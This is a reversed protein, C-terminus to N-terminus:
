FGYRQMKKTLGYRSLGLVKSVKTKNGGHKELTESLVSKELTEVMQKLTGQLGLGSCAMLSKDRVKETLDSIEIRGGREAMAVAREM